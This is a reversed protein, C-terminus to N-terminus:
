QVVSFCKLPNLGTAFDQSIFVRVHKGLCAPLLSFCDWCRIRSDLLGLDEDFRHAMLSAFLFSLVTACALLLETPVHLFPLVLRWKRVSLRGNGVAKGSDEGREM